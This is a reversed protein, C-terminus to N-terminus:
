ASTALAALRRGIWPAFKFGHGSCPSGIVVPGHRELIFSEDPTNTYLCTEALHLDPDADPFRRRVWAAIRSVAEPRPAAEQNPDTDPGTGHEGAKIGQGPGRLAYGAPESWEVLSPMSVSEDIRFYAVTERTPRVPVEIGLPALLDRVWSGVTVVAVPAQYTEHDTDVTVRDGDVTLSRAPREHVVEAGAQRATRQFADLARDALVIGADPQFLAEGPPFAVVPFRRGAEAADLVEFAAGEAALAAAHQDVKAGLDIGGTTRILEVGAEDELERWLPLAEMAMRVYRREGYSFRFIRSRGHSSGRTHGPGFRELLVVDRGAVALTRATASGMIGAGIVVADARRM